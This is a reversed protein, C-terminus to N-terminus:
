SKTSYGELSCECINSGLILNSTFRPVCFKIKLDSQNKTKYYFKKIQRM